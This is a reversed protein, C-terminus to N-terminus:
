VYKCRCAILLLWGIFPVSGYQFTSHVRGWLSTHNAVCAAQEEEAERVLTSLVARLGLSNDFVGPVDLGSATNSSAAVPFSCCAMSRQCKGRYLIEGNTKDGIEVSM